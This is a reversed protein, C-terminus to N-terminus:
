REFVSEAQLLSQYGANESLPKSLMSDVADWQDETILFVSQEALVEEARQLLAQVSFETLNFGQANSAREITAKQELTLRIAIRENKLVDIAM